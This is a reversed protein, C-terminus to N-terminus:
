EDKLVECLLDYEEQILGYDTINITSQGFYIYVEIDKVHYLGIVFDIHQKLIEIIKELKDLRDLDKEIVKELIDCYSNRHERVEYDCARALFLLRELAEKSKM